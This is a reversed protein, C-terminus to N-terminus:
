ILLSANLNSLVDTLQNAVTLQGEGGCLLGIARRSGLDVILSGSDGECSFPRSQLGFLEFLKSKIRGRGRNDPKWTGILVQGKFRVTETTYEMKYAFDAHLVIGETYGTTRGIKAVRMGKEARLPQASSLPISGPFTPIVDRPDILRALACDLSNYVSASRLLVAIEDRGTRGGDAPGPQLVQTGGPARGLNALVHSNGLICRSEDSVVVAGLTGATLYGQPAGPIEIGVSCGLRAPRQRQQELSLTTPFPRFRGGVHVVDTKFGEFTNPLLDEPPIVDKPFKHVVYFSICDEGTWIGNALKTGSGIGIVNEQPRTSVVWGDFHLHPVSEVVLFQEIATELTAKVSTTRDQVQVSSGM